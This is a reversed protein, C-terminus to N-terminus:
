QKIDRARLGELNTSTNSVQFYAFHPDTCKWVYRKLLYTSFRASQVNWIGSVGHIDYIGVNVGRAGGWSIPLYELGM